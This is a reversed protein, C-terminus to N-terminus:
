ACQALDGYAAYGISNTSNQKKSLYQIQQLNAALKILLKHHAYMYIQNM